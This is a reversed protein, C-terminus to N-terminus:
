AGLRQKRFRTCLNSEQRPCEGCDQSFRLGRRYRRQKHEEFWQRRSYWQDTRRAARLRGRKAGVALANGSLESDALSRLNTTLRGVQGNGNRFPHIREFRGHVDAVFVM